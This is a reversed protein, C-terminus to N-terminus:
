PAPGAPANFCALVASQGPCTKVFDLEGTGQAMTDATGREGCGNSHAVLTRLSAMALSDYVTGLSQRAINVYGLMLRLQAVDTANAPPPPVQANIASEACNLNGQTVPAAAVATTVNGIDLAWTRNRGGFGESTNNNFGNSLNAGAPDNNFKTLAVRYSGAALNLGAFGSDFSSFDDNSAIYAGTTLNYVHLQPDFGGGPFSRGAFNTGGAYHYTRMNVSAPAALTFDVFQAQRGTLLEGTFSFNAATAPLAAALALAGAVARLSRGIRNKVM